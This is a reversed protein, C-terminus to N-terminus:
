NNQQIQQVNINELINILDMGCEKFATMVAFQIKAPLIKALIYAKESDLNLTDVITLLEQETPITKNHEIKSYKSVDIACLQAIERSKYRLKLRANKIYDGITMCTEQQNELKTTEDKNFDHFAIGFTNTPQQKKPM